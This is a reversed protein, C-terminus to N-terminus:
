GWVARLRASRGCFRSYGAYRVPNLRAFDQHYAEAPWFRPLPQVQTVIPGPFIREDNLSRIRSEAIERQQHDTLAM